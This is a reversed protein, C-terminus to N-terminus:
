YLPSEVSEEYHKLLEDKYLKKDVVSKAVLFHVTSSFGIKMMGIFAESSVSIEVSGLHHHKEDFLPFIYRFGNVIRGEEFGDVDTLKKNVLEVGYRIGDLNDGYKDPKHMRLFSTNDKLHFHLQTFHLGRMNEYSKNLYQKLEIRINDLEQPNAKYLKNLIKQVEASQILFLNMNKALLKYYQYTAKYRISDIEMQSNLISEIRSEKHTYLAFLIVVACVTVLAAINKYNKELNTM